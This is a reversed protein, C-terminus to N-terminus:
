MKYYLDEIGGYEMWWGEPLDNDDGFEELFDQIQNYLAEHAHDLPCRWEAMRENAVYVDSPDLKSKVFVLAEGLIGTEKNPETQFAWDQEIFYCDDEACYHSHKSFGGRKQYEPYETSGVKIYLGEM